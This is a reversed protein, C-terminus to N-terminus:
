SPPLISRLIPLTDRIELVFHPAQARVTERAIVGGYGIFCDVVPVTELDSAGDGIMAIIHSSPLQARAARLYDPKGGSRTTPFSRDFNTYSGDPHFTIPVAALHEIHLHNALPEIAPLLGGSLIWVAWGEAHLTAVTEEAGPVLTELYLQGLKAMDSRTPRILDLRRAFVDELRTQGGMARNTLAECQAFIEPSRWRALEDIGEISSLTSDCDFVAIRTPKAAM